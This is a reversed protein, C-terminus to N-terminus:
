STSPPHEGLKVWLRRAQVLAPRNMQLLSLTTTGVDTLGVLETAGENWAFHEAWLQRQPHFLLIRQRSVPDVGTQRTAKHRNCSPCALCLNEFLTEGGASHPVIHEFEFTM